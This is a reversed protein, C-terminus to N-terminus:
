TIHDPGPDYRVVDVSKGAQRVREAVADHAVNSSTGEDKALVILDANEEDAASVIAAAADNASVVRVDLQTGSFLPRARRRLRVAERKLERDQEPTEATEGLVLLVVRAAGRRAVRAAEPLAAEGAPTADVPLLVISM